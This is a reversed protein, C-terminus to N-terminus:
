GGPLAFANISKDNLVAFQFTFKGARPSKGLRAAIRMLYGTLEDNDVVVQTKRVEAASQRGMQVDQDLSFINFGPKLEKRDAAALALPLLLLPALSRRM